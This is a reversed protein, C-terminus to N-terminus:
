SSNRGVLSFLNNLSEALTPHAFIMDKLDRFTLGGEMAVQVVAMLEGAEMGLCTFGLIKGSGPDVQAKMFGRTEDVELARAVHTMPMKVSEFKLGSSATDTESLGIRGLQPDIFVVYPLIRGETSADGGDFLNTKVIRYDDYAIHTFAPGGKIDGLAYVGETTTRLRKDVKVYGREDTEVGAAPLNLTDSNPIRGAAVLLHSGTVNMHGEPCTLKLHITGDQDQAASHTDAELIIRIGDERFIEQIAEAVDVDERSLVHRSRHIITVESGFRRFMRGFELGVYGGGIVMLHKPVIDLEMITENNLVTCSSLGEIDPIVPRTGTDVFVLDGTIRQSKGDSSHVDIERLGTFRAEGWFIKVGKRELKARDGASFMEVIDRKRQRVRVMDVAVPDPTLVGYQGARSVLYAIRGSAEMTKTPSCGVNVCSGGIYEREVLAVSHGTVAFKVALPNGAQGSGIIVSDFKKM